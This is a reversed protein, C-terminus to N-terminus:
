DVLGERVAYHTLEANTRMKMKELIRTRYTSVTKVSLSLDKAIESVARGRAISCLVEFERDSLMEHPPKGSDTQIDLVLREALADSVYRGGARVKTVARILEDPACDKNAYGSAGAKLIRVGMQDEAHVSLVLVPLNPQQYKLDRLLELGSRGPMSVDLLVLDYVHRLAMGLAEDANGAEDIRAGVFEDALIQKLGQRVVAHDDVILVSQMM